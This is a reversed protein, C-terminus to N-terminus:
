NAAVARVLIDRDTVMGILRDGDGVPLAGLDEDRMRLAAERIMANADILEAAPTMIARVQM